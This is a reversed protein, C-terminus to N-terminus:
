CSPLVTTAPYLITLKVTTGQLIILVRAPMPAGEITEEPDLM